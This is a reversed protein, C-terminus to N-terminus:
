GSPVSKTHTSGMSWPKLFYPRLNSFWRTWVLPQGKEGVQFVLLLSDPKWSRTESRKSFGEDARRELVSPCQLCM